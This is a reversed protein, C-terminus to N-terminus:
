GPHIKIDYMKQSSSKDWVNIYCRKLVEVHQCLQKVSRFLYSKLVNLHASFETSSKIDKLGDSTVVSRRQGIPDVSSCQQLETTTNQHIIDETKCSSRREENGRPVLHNTRSSPNGYPALDCPIRHWCNEPVLCRALHSKM